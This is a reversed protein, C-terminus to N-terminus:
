LGAEDRAHSVFFDSFTVRLNERQYTTAFYDVVAGDRREERLKAVLDGALTEAFSHASEPFPKDGARIKRKIYAKARTTSNPYKIYATIGHYFVKTYNELLQSLSRWSNAMRKLEAYNGAALGSDAALSNLM